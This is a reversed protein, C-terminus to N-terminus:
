PFPGERAIIFTLLTAYHLATYHVQWWLVGGCGEVDRERERERHTHTHTYSILVNKIVGGWRCGLSYRLLM